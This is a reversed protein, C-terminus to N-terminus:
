GADGGDHAWPPIFASFGNFWATYAYTDAASKWAERRAARHAGCDGAHTGLQEQGAAKLHWIEVPIKAKAGSAFRRM